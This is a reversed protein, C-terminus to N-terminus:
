SLDFKHKIVAQIRRLRGYVFFESGNPPSNKTEL